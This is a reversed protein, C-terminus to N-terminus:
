NQIERVVSNGYGQRFLEPFGPLWDTCDAMPRSCKHIDLVRIPFVNNRSPFNSRETIDLFLLGFQRM